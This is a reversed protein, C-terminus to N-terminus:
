REARWYVNQFQGYVYTWGMMRKEELKRQGSLQERARDALKENYAM